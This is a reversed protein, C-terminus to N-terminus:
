NACSNPSGQFVFSFSAAWSKLPAFDQKKQFAVVWPSSCPIALWPRKGFPRMLIKCPKLITASLPMVFGGAQVPTNM